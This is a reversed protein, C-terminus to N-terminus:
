RKGRRTTKAKRQRRIVTADFVTKGKAPGYTRRMNALVKDAAGPQGGFLKDLRSTM